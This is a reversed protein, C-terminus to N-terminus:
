EPFIAWLADVAPGGCAVRQMEPALFQFSEVLSFAFPALRCRYNDIYIVRGGTNDALCTYETFAETNNLNADLFTLIHITVNKKHSEHLGNAFIWDTQGACMPAM